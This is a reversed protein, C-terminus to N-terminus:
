ANRTMVFFVNKMHGVSYSMYNDFQQNYRIALRYQYNGKHSIRRDPLKLMNSKAYVHLLNGSKKLATIKTSSVPKQTMSSTKFYEVYSDTTLRLVPLKANKSDSTTPTGKVLTTLKDTANAKVTKFNHNIRVTIYRASTQHRLKYRMTSLDIRGYTKNNKNTKYIFNVRTNKPLIVKGSKVTTTSVAYSTGSSAMAPSGFLSLGLTLTLASLGLKILKM